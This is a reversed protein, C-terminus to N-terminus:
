ADAWSDTVNDFTYGSYSTRAPLGHEKRIKNETFDEDAYSQLGVTRMEEEAKGSDQGLTGGYRRYGAGHVDHYAHILEHALGIFPPRYKNDAKARLPNFTVVCTSGKGAMYRLKIPKAPNQVVKKAVTDVSSEPNESLGGVGHEIIVKIADDTFLSRAALSKLLAKGVPYARIENLAVNVLDFFSASPIVKAAEGSLEIKKKPDRVYIGPHDEDWLIDTM